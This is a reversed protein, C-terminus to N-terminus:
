PQTKQTLQKLLKAMSRDQTLMPVAKRTESVDCIQEYHEAFRRELFQMQDSNTRGIADIGGLARVAMQVRSDNPCREGNRAAERVRAWAEGATLRGAKRLQEFHFPNPMFEMSDRLRACASRFEDLEWDQMANWWAAYAEPTLKAGPKLMALETLAAVFMPKDSEIM